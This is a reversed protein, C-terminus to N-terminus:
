CQVAVVVVDLMEMESSQRHPATEKVRLRTLNMVNLQSVRGDGWWWWFEHIEECLAGYFM